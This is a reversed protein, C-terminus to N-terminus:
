AKGKEPTFYCHAQEDISGSCHIHATLILTWAASLFMVILVYFLYDMGSWDMLLMRHLSFSNTQLLYTRLLSLSSFCSHVSIILLAKNDM